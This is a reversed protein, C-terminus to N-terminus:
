FINCICLICAYVDKKIYLEVPDKVQCKYRAVIYLYQVTCYMSQLPTPIKPDM